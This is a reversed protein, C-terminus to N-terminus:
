GHHGAHANQDGQPADPPPNQQDQETTQEVAYVPTAAPTIVAETIFAALVGALLIQTIKKNM